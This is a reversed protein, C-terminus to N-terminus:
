LNIFKKIKNKLYSGVMEFFISDFNSISIIIAVRSDNINYKAMYPTFITWVYEM